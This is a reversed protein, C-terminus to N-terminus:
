RLNEVEPANSDDNVPANSNDSGDNASNDNSAPKNANDRNNQVNARSNRLLNVQAKPDPLNWLELMDEIPTIFVTYTDMDKLTAALAGVLKGGVYVPSGSMGQLIGGTQRVVEGSARAMILRKSGKGEDTLGVIQVDFNEIKGSGDVVTYAKGVMGSRLQDFPLIEPMAWTTSPAILLVTLVFLFLKLFLRQLNKLEM